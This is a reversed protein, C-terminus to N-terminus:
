SQSDQPTQKEYGQGNPMAPWIKFETMPLLINRHKLRIECRM